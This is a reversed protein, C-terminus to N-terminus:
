EVKDKAKGEAVTQWQMNTPVDAGGRKLPVVHDIVYGPCSGSTHGNAPCPHAHKFEDKAKTSRAIKDNSARKVGTGVKPHSVKASKDTSGIAASKSKSVRPASVKPITSHSKSAHSSSHGSSHGSRATAEPAAFLALAALLAVIGRMASGWLKLNHISTGVLLTELLQLRTGHGINWAKLAQCRNHIASGRPQLLPHLHFRDFVNAPSNDTPHGRDGRHRRHPLRWRRPRPTTM